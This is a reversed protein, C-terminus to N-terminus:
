APGGTRKEAWKQVQRAAEDFETGHDLSVGTAVDDLAAARVTERHMAAERRVIAEARQGCAPCVEPNVDAFSALGPELDRERLLRAEAAEQSRADGDYLCRPCLPVWVWVPETEGLRRGATETGHGSAPRGCIACRDKPPVKPTETEPMPDGREARDRPRTATPTM